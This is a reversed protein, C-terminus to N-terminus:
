TLGCTAAPLPFLDVPKSAACGQLRGCAPYGRFILAICLPVQLLREADVRACYLNGKGEDLHATGSQEVKCLLSVKPVATQHCIM